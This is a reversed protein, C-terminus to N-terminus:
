LKIGLVQALGRLNKEIESKSKSTFNDPNFLSMDTIAKTSGKITAAIDAPLNAAQPATAPPAGQPQQTAAPGQAPKPQSVTTSAGGTQPVFVNGINEKTFAAFQGPTLKLLENVFTELNFQYKRSLEQIDGVNQFIRSLRGLLGGAGQFEKTIFDKIQQVASADGELHTELSWKENKKIADRISPLQTTVNALKKIFSQMNAVFAAAQSLHNAKDRLKGMVSNEFNTKANAVATKLSNLNYKEALADLGDITANFKAVNAQTSLIKDTWGESLLLEREKIEQRKKYLEELKSSM